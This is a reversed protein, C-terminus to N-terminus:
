HVGVGGDPHRAREPERRALPTLPGPQDRRGATDVPRRDPLEVRMAEQDQRAGDDLVRRGRAGHVAVERFRGAHAARLERHQCEDHGHRQELHDQERPRGESDSGSALLAGQGQDGGRSTLWGVDAPDHERTTEHEPRSRRDDARGATDGDRPEGEGSTCCKLVSRSPGNSSDVRSMVAMAAHPSTLATSAASAGAMSAARCSTTATSAPRRPSVRVLSREGNIPASSSPSPM